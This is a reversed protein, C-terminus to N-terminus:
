TDSFDIETWRNDHCDVVTHGCARCARNRTEVDVLCYLATAIQKGIETSVGISGSKRHLNLIDGSEFLTELRINIFVYKRFLCLCYEVYLRHDVELVDALFQEVVKLLKCRMTRAVGSRQEAGVVHIVVARTLHHALILLVDFKLQNIAHRAIHDVANGESLACRCSEDLALATEVDYIIDNLICILM